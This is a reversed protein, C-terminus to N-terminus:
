LIESVEKIEIGEFFYELIETYNKGEKALENATNQSMGLGHGIGQTTVRLKGDVEQVTFCSSKLGYTQRFEEGTCTENGCKVALVYGASDYATVEFDMLTIDTTQMQGEAELDKPCDRSVLYAYEESNLAEKGDRTKGNSLQHYPAMVIENNYTLVKESTIEWIKVIEQYRAAFDSAGWNKQMEKNTWFNDEFVAKDGEDKIKMYIGNRVIVAQAKAAEEEFGDPLDKALVGIAYEKLDMEIIGSATQIRINNDKGEKNEKIEVGNAFITVIYPLLIVIILVCCLKKIKSFM